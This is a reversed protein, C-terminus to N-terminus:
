LYLKSEILSGLEKSKWILKYLWIAFQMKGFLGWRMSPMPQALFKKPWLLNKEALQFNFKEFNLWIQNFFNWITNSCIDGRILYISALFISIKPAISDHQTRSLRVSDPQTSSLQTSDHQTASLQASDLQTLSLWASDSLWALDIQTSSLQDLFTM